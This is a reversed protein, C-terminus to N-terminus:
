GGFYRVAADLQPDVGNLVDAQTRGVAEDPVVGVGALEKGTVPGINVAVTVALSSGDGLPQVDTFGVCGNTTQGIVHAVGYEQLGAAFLEAVSGTRNDALLVTPRVVPLTAGTAREEETRDRFRSKVLVGDPVFLSMANTDERGGPDDRLDIIWKTVGQLEFGTLVDRLPTAIGGDVFNRVRVYGIGNGLLRSEINPPTVRERTVGIALPAAEGARRISLAAVTGERGNILDFDGAAAAVDHGHRGGGPDPRRHATGGPGGARRHHSGHYGAAGGGTGRRHGGGRRRSRTDILTDSGVPTLFFTHCDNLSAAMQSIAAYRLKTADPAQAALPVYAAEFAAIDAARDGTFSPAADISLGEAAAEQRVGAWAESLLDSSNLPNIYQDMLRVFATQIMAVGGDRLLAPDPTPTGVPATATPPAATVEATATVAPVGASPTVSTTKEDSCALAVLALAVVIAGAATRRKLGPVFPFIM